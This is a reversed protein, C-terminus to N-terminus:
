CKMVYMMCMSAHLVGAFFVCQMCLANLVYAYYMCQTCVAHLVRARALFATSASFCVCVCVCVCVRVRVRVCVCVRSSVFVCDLCRLRIRVSHVYRKCSVLLLDVAYNVCQTHVVHVIRARAVFSCDLCRLLCVCACVRASM